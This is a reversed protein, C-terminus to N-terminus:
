EPDTLPPGLRRPVLHDDVNMPRQALAEDVFGDVEILDCHMPEAHDFFRMWTSRSVDDAIDVKYFAQYGRWLPHWTDYEDSRAARVRTGM